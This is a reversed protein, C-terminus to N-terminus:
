YTFKVDAYFNVGRDLKKPFRSKSSFAYRGNAARKARLPGSSWTKKKYFGTTRAAKGGPLYYSAVYSRGATLLVPDDLM